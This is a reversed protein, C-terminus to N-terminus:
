RTFIYKNKQFELVMRKETLELIVFTGSASVGGFGMIKTRKIMINNGSLTWDSEFGFDKCEATKQCTLLYKKSTSDYSFSWPLISDCATLVKKKPSKPSNIYRTLKWEGLIQTHEIKVKSSSVQGQVSYACVTFFVIILINKM